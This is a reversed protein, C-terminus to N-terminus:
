LKINYFNSSESSESIGMCVSYKVTRKDWKKIAFKVACLDITGVKFETKKKDSMKLKPYHRAQSHM